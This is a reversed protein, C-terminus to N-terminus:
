LSCVLTSWQKGTLAISLYALYTLHPITGRTETPIDLDIALM